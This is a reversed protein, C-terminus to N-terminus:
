GRTVRRAHAYSRSAHRPTPAPGSRLGESVIALAAGVLLGVLAGILPWRLPGLGGEARRAGLGRTPLGEDDPISRRVAKAYATALEIAQQPRDAEVSVAIDLRSTSEAESRRQLEALDIGGIGALSITQRLVRESRALQVSRQPGLAAPVQIVYARARYERGKGLAFASAAAAFVLVSAVVITLGRCGGVCRIYGDAPHLVSVRLDTHV